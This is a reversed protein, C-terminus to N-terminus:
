MGLTKMEQVIRRQQDILADQKWQKENELFKAQIQAKENKLLTTQPQQPKPQSTKSTCKHLLAKPVLRKVIASTTHPHASHLPGLPSALPLSSRLLSASESTCYTDTFWSDNYISDSSSLSANSAPRSSYYAMQSLTSTLWHCVHATSSHKSSRQTKIALISLRGPTNATLISHQTLKYPFPFMLRLAVASIYGAPTDCGCRM